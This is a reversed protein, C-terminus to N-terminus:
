KQNALKVKTVFEDVLVRVQDRVKAAADFKFNSFLVEADWVVAQVLVPQKASYPLAATVYVYAETRINAICIEEGTMGIHVNVYVTVESQPDVKIGGDLLTRSAALRVAERTVGCREAAANLEEVLVQVDRIGRLQMLDIPIQAPPRAFVSLLLLAIGHL